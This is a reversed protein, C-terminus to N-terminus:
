AKQDRQKLKELHEPQDIQYTKASKEIRRILGGLVQGCGIEYFDIAGAAVMARVSEEWRVPSVVQQTLLDPIAQEHPYPNATVNSYVPIKPEAFRRKELEERIKQAASQMLATHFPASVKLPKAVGRKKKCLEVARDVAQRHGAIVVQRPANFNTPVVVQGQAAEKCLEEVLIKELGIVAVM